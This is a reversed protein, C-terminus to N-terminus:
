LVSYFIQREGVKEVYSSFLLFIFFVFVLLFFPFGGKKKYFFNFLREGTFLPMGM